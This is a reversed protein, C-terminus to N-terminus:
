ARLLASVIGDIKAMSMADATEETTGKTMAGANGYLNAYAMLFLGPSFLQRYLRELPLKKNGRERIVALVAEASQM